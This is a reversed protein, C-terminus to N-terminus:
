FCSKGSLEGKFFSKLDLNIARIRIRGKFHIKLGCIARLRIRGKFPIKSDM